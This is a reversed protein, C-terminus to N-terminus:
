HWEGELVFGAWYYPARWREESLLSIQAERLARAPPLGEQLLAEYFRKMLEGTARDGVDWLSVILRPVGAHLFAQTLGVLGEGRVPEGLATSCASLVVLDTSHLDLDSIEYARLNGDVPHGSADFASLALASLEPHRDDALSHTAFHLFRFGGLRGSLVLDRSAAFGTAALTPRSGALTLIAAAEQGTYPLRRLAPTQGGTSAVEAGGGRHAKALRDDKPGLVPDAVVALLGRSPRRDALQSRLAGLVSASPLSVIEHDLILPRAEGGGAPDPLAAFPVLQLAGPAVVVLRKRGLLDAVPGLLMRSLREAALRAAVDGTQHHSETMQEHTRLAAEELRQRGPLTAVFRSSAPTVAWLFSREEGLSFELLLTGEDLLARVEALSLTPPVGARPLRPGQATAAEQRWSELLGTLAAEQEDNPIGQATSSLLDLHRTNIRRGLDDLRRLEEPDPRRRAASLLDLLSRALARESVAFARADYGRRPERRHREALLDILFAYQKEHAAQYKSRLDPRWLRGRIAEVLELSQEVRREAEELRGQSRAVRALGFLATEEEPRNSGGRALELAQGYRERARGPLDLREYALGLNNLAVAQALADARLRFIQAADEFARLAEQPRDAKLWGLGMSNLTVAQGRLDHRQRRLELAERFKDLAAPTDGLGLLTDGLKNLTVARQAPNPQQDLLALAEQYQELALHSDGLTAYLLGLNTLTTALKSRARQDRWVDAAQSYLDIAAHLRGQRTRVNALDNLRAAEEDAKGLKRWLALAQEDSRAARDMEGLDWWTKGQHSLAAAAQRQEHVSRYLDIALGLTEAGTVRQTPDLCYLQGLRDLAWAERLEEGLEGWLRAAERYGRAAEAAGRGERDLLRARSFAGAADARKRDERTAERLAAVRIEYRGGAGAGEFPTIELLHRGPEEAVLFLDESGQAGQPSDVRLLIHGAPDRLTAVVDVGLQEVALHLYTGAPLSLAYIRSLAAPQSELFRAGTKLALPFPLVPPRPAVRLAAHVDRSKRESEVGGRGCGLAGLAELAVALLVSAIRCRRV